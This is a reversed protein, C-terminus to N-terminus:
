RLINGTNRPRKATYGTARALACESQIRTEVTAVSTSDYFDNTGGWIIAWAGAIFKNGLQTSYDTIMNTIRAGARGVNTVGIPSRAVRLQDPYSTNFSGTGSTLSDGETVILTPASVTSVAHFRLRTKTQATASLSPFLLGLALILVLCRRM